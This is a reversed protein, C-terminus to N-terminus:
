LAEKESIEFADIDEDNSNDNNYNSYVPTKSINIFVISTDSYIIEYYQKQYWNCRKTFGIQVQWIGTDNFIYYQLPRNDDVPKKNPEWTLAKHTKSM